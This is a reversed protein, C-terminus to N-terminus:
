IENIANVFIHTTQNYGLHQRLHGGLMVLLRRHFMVIEQGPSFKRRHSLFDQTQASHASKEAPHEAFDRPPSVSIVLLSIM